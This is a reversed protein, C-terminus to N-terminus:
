IAYLDLSFHPTRRLHPLPGSACERKLDCELAHVYQEHQRLHRKEDSNRQTTKTKRIATLEASYRTPNPCHNCRHGARL